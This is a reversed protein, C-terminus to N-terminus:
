QPITALYVGPARRIVNPVVRGSAHDLMARSVQLGSEDGTLQGVGTGLCPVAVSCDDPLGRLCELISIMAWYINQPTRRLSQPVRM